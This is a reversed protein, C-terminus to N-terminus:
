FEALTEALAITSVLGDRATQPDNSDWFEVARSLAETLEVSLAKRQPELLKRAFSFASPLDGEDLYVRVLPWIATWFYPTAAAQLGPSQDWLELAALAHKRADAPNGDKLAAWALNAKAAGEYEPMKAMEAAALARRALRQVPGVNGRKRQAITLYTLCRTELSLDGRQEALRLATGIEEEARDIEGNLLLIFGFGFHDAPIRESIGAKISVEVATEVLAVIERTAAYRNARLRVMGMLQYFVARQLSSGYREVLPIMDQYLVESKEIWAMWYYVNQVEIEIQIWCQWWTQEAAGEENPSNGLTVLARNYIVLSDVFHYEDRWTNGIKRELNARGVPDSLPLLQLGREFAVRAESRLAMLLLLDGIQEEIQAAPFPSSVQGAPSHLLALALQYYHLAQENAFVRRAVEAAQQYYPIARDTLGAKEYHSGIRGSFEEVEEGPDASQSDLALDELGEAVCRHLYRRRATSLGQYAEIRIKDHSFDYANTGHERIIRRQWLEDLAHVLTAENIEKSAKVLISYNFSHGITAALGALDRAAPSLLALRRAIVARITPSTPIPNSSKRSPSWDEPTTNPDSAMRVSEVVFLPHGETEAFLREAVALELPHGAENEALTRTEPSSLPKLEVEDLSVGSHLDKLWSDLANGPNLEELRLTAILFLRSPLASRMLYHLWALTESDCWQL